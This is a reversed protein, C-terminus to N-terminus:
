WRSGRLQVASRKESANKVDSCSTSFPEQHLPWQQGGLCHRVWAGFVGNNLTLGKPNRQDFGSGPLSHCRSSGAVQDLVLFGFPRCVVRVSGPAHYLNVITTISQVICRCPAVGHLRM